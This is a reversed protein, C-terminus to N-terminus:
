IFWHKPHSRYKQYCSGLFIVKTGNPCKWYDGECKWTKCFEEDEDSGDNCDTNGDCVQSIYCIYHLIVTEKKM